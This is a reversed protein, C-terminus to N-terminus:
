RPMVDERASTRPAVYVVRARAQGAQVAHRCTVKLVPPPPHKDVALFPGRLLLTAGRQLGAHLHNHDADLAGAQGDPGGLSARRFAKAFGTSIASRNRSM